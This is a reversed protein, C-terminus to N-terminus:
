RARAARAPAAASRSPAVRATGPRSRRGIRPSGIGGARGIGTHRDIAPESEPPPAPMWASRLANARAPTCPSSARDGRDGRLVRDRDRGDCGTGGSIMTPAPGRRRRLVEADVRHLDPHEAADRAISATARASSSSAAPCAPRREVRHHDGLGTARSSSCSARPRRQALQMRGRAVTTVGFRGSARTSAPAVALVSSAPALEARARGRARARRADDDGAAVALSAVSRNKSPSSTRRSGRRAGDRRRRARSPSCASRSARPAARARRARRELRRASARSTAPSATRSPRRSSPAPAPGTSTSPRRPRPAAAAPSRATPRSRARRQWLRAAHLEQPHLRTVALDQEGLAVDLHRRPPAREDLREARWSSARCTPPPAALSAAAAAALRLHDRSRRPGARRRARSRRGARPRRRATPRHVAGISSASLAVAITM